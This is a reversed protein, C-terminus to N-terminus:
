TTRAWKGLQNLTARFDKADPASIALREGNSPHSLEISAAHLGLRGILPREERETEVYRRKIRSLLVSEGDGYLPDCVIPHGAHALHVRIQHTRGTAPRAEVLAYGVFRELVDVVTHAKKGKRDVVTRIVRGDPPRLAADIEFHDDRPEGRIIARYVKTVEGAEFQRNLAAHAEATRALVMVGSTERDLRHVILLDRARVVSRVHPLSRDYRDPLSLLGAPKNIVLLADDSHLQDVSLRRGHGTDFSGISQPTTHTHPPMTRKCDRAARRVFRRTM